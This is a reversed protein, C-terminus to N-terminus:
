DCCPVVAVPGRAHDLLVHQISGIGSGHRGIVVLDARASYNALVRAPHGHIVDCRVPVDTYKERWGDLAASLGSAAEASIQEPHFPVQLVDDAEARARLASPFWYWAHVVVLDAHRAAAEEFAFTLAASTDHPDRIGIAVEQHVAMSAQRVVIVPCAARIAAYRGVSGLVMATFGGAGRAGVVLMTAGSDCDAVALAPPGSLLDASIELGPAAEEARGVGMELARVSAERLASAVTVPTAPYPHTPPVMAPASVIRLPLGHRRAETAAWEAALLSDESGDVGVVVPKAGMAARRMMNCAKIPPGPDSEARLTIAESRFPM